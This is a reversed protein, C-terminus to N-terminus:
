STKLLDLHARHERRMQRAEKWTMLRGIGAHVNSMSIDSVIEWHRYIEKWAFLLSHDPDYIHTPESGTGNLEIISFHKGAQFDDWKKFRIDLRGFFFGPVQRCIQDIVKTLEPTLRSTLDIFKAGRSHNGYPVLNVTEARAPIRHLQVGYVRELAPLQLVARDDRMLLSLLTSTGDGIVSLFEKGVIGSIYGNNSGPYRYYFIGVENEYSIYQQLLFDVKSTIRYTELEQQTELLKVQVGREGIDPKAILPFDLSHEALLSGVAASAVGAKCLVTTPYSGLPLLPYIDSKREHIFGSYAIGPNAASFFLLSRARLGLWLWFPVMPLYLCQMPWYEWHELRIFFRRTKWYFSNFNPIGAALDRTDRAIGANSLRLDHYRISTNGNAMLQLSTVSVTRMDAYIRSQSTEYRLNKGLHFGLVTEQVPEGALSLWKQLLIERKGRLDRGYLTASSWMHAKRADLDSIHRNEGDWTCQLLIGGTLLILTFPEIDELVVDRFYDCPEDAAFVDLMVLGRSKRYHPRRNHNEFGGNLLVAASNDDRRAIWTGGAQADKPYILSRCGAPYNAPPLAPARNIHEDRSSTLMVGGSTPIYTVTCM